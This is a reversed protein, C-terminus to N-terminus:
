ELIKLYLSFFEGSIENEPVIKLIYLNKQIVMM